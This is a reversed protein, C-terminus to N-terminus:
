ESNFKFILDFGSDISSNNLQLFLFRFLEYELKVEYTALNDKENKEGFHQEYSVFLDNTIYKGVVVTANEFGGESKIELYDMDLKEGLFNSIQSSILSAAAKGALTGGGSGTMNAQQDMTLENMGKGFLIYSFADGENISDGDMSFSVAPSEATGTVHVTLNQEVRESTRFRYTATIDLYPTIEEGGQFRVTGEDIVFTKGLLDYQGRVVDVNGFIEFFDKNKILELDGSLEIYMDDSKIWTNRPIKLKVKGTFDDFHDSAARDNGSESQMSMITDPQEPMKKLERVLIPEPIEDTNMKGLMSLVAPLFIKSRPINLDGDFIVKGKEGTISADGSVQMNFQSHDVPNFQNFKLTIKSQNIDGKYFASNFGAQGTATMRGDATRIRFTDLSIKEPSFQINFDINRYNIGYKAMKFSGEKMQLNGQPNPSELTGNLSVKGNMSGTIEDAMVFANLVTLPLRQVTLLANVTDKPNFSFNMSDLHLHLPVSGTLAIKGSDRPVIQTEMQLLNDKYNVTGGLERLPYDNFVAHRLEFDGNLLPSAAIGNLNLNLNLLGSAKTKMQLLGTVRELNINAVQLRFDENGKRSITGQVMVYQATDSDGSAIRFDNIRYHLSDIELTAPPQQLAWHEDKYNILWETLIFRLKKGTLIGTSIRSSMDQDVLKADVFVSDPSAEIRASVSDLMMSKNGPNKILLDAHVLTDDTTLLANANMKLGLLSFDQYHSENLEVSTLLNLSDKKGTLHCHITGSTQISDVPLFPTFEETGNFRALLRIDSASRFNYNGSAGLSLNKTELRLSDIQINENSYRINAFLTDLQIERFQSKTINFGTKIFLTKPNFGKGSATANLNISSELSDIGTVQALDLNKTVLDFRYVPQGNLGRIQPTLHFTGPDGQGEVSGDLNGKKINVNFNLQDLSRGAILCETFRGHLGAVLTKSDIGTGEATLRGNLLYNLEPNGLWHALDVHELRGQLAYRIGSVESNYLLGAFNPSLLDLHIRQGQDALDLSARLSDDNLAADFELVPNAPLTLGPLFFSFERLHLSDSQLGAASIGAKRQAYQVRGKFQNKATKIKLDTLKMYSTDREFMFTLQKLTLDPNKTEFSLHEVQIQQEDRDWTLSLSTNLHDIQRPILTDPSEIRLMGETLQFIALQLRFPASSDKGTKGPAPKFLQQINWTSDNLQKLCILPRDIQGSYIQLKGKMLPWLSYSADIARIFVITDKNQSLLIDNLKLHSFFNGEIEGISLHGNMYVSAQKEVFSALKKRVPRTQILLVSLIVVTFVAMILFLAIYKVIKLM